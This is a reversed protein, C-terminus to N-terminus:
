MITCMDFLKKKLKKSGKQKMKRDELAVTVLKDFVKKLGKENLASCEMHGAAGINSAVENGDEKTLFQINTYMEHQERMDVKTGVLVIPTRPSFKRLEPIWVSEVNKLSTPSDVSYAVLFVDTNPYSLPRLRDYEEQGATDWLGLSIPTGEVMVNAIYNDFITPIYDEPFEGSTYSILMCTKGVAGDGVCVVKVNEM